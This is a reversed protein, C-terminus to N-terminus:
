ILDYMVGNVNFDLLISTENGNVFARKSRDGAYIGFDVYNDGDPGLVWGVVQGVSSRTIGLMDYVENLFLHKNIRLRDNAYNQQCRLFTLNLEPSAQWQPSVDDFYRAYPSYEANLQIDTTEEKQLKMAGNRGVVEVENIESRRNLYIDQEAEAGFRESVRARYANYGATLATVASTLGANRQMTIGHGKSIAFISGAMLIAPVGYLKTFDLATNASASVIDNRYDADTYSDRSCTERAEKIHSFNYKTSEIAQTAKLTARCALVTAVVVGAIGSYVLIEPSHKAIQIRADAFVRPKLVMDTSEM